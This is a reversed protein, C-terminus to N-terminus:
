SKQPDRKEEKKTKKRTEAKLKRSPKPKTGRVWQVEKKKYIILTRCCSVGRCGKKQKFFFM